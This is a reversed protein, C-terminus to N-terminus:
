STFCALAHFLRDYETDSIIPQEEIHYLHNHERVVERLLPIDEKKLLHLRSLFGTSVTFLQSIQM